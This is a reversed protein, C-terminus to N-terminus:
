FFEFSKQGRLNQFKSGYIPMSTYYYTFKCLLTKKPPTDWMQAIATQTIPQKKPQCIFQGNIAHLTLSLSVIDIPLKYLVKKGVFLHSKSFKAM